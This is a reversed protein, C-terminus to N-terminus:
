SGPKVLLPSTLYTTPQLRYNTPNSMSSSSMRTLVASESGEHFFREVRKRNALHNHSLAMGPLARRRRSDGHSSLKNAGAPPIPFIPILPRNPVSGGRKM